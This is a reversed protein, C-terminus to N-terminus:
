GARRREIRVETPTVAQEEFVVLTNEARLWSKPLHYCQQTPRGGTGPSAILWHRGVGHGNVFLMGKGLGAANIRFDADEALMEPPLHFASRYWSLRSGAKVESWGAAASKEVLGSKEGALYPIMEWGTLPAGNLQVGEWIGKREFNMPSDIMWDGKIMGVATALIDLRHKGAAVDALKFAHRYGDYHPTHRNMFVRPHAPDEPTIPGRDEKLPAVSEGAPKGDLFVYFYDGGYPILLEQAGATAVDITTSYWCYDTHDRTLLLQETPQEARIAEGKREAPMPEGWAKWQMAASAAQKWEPPQWATEIRRHLQESDFVTKGEPDIIEASAARAKALDATNPPYKLILVLERGNLKWATRQAGEATVTATREGKMLYEEHALLTKHLHSLYLGKFTTRGYEDLPAHFDYSTTQLYMSTRGFNTGGHWMYYNWGAGGNALFVLIALALIRADRDRDEPRTEGWIEYWAPYLETWLLPDHNNKARFEAIRAPSIDGGNLTAIPGESAGECMTTPVDAFGVRRALAAMWELYEEGEAGYRAAVNAYENEVQVLIVPGGRTALHPNVEVALREFFKEVRKLYPKNMTRM